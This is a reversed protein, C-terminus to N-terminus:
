TACPRSDENICVKVHKRYWRYSDYDPEDVKFNFILTGSDGDEGDHFYELTKTQASFSHVVLNDSLTEADMDALDFDSGARRLRIRQVGTDSPHLTVAEPNLYYPAEKEAKYALAQDILFDSANFDSIDNASRRANLIRERKQILEEQAESGDTENNIEEESPPTECLEDDEPEFCVNDLLTDIPTGDKLNGEEDYEQIEQTFDDVPVHFDIDDLAEPNDTLYENIQDITRQTITITGSPEATSDEGIVLLFRTLNIAFPDEEAIAEEIVRHSTFGQEDSGSSHLLKRQEESFELPSLMPAVPIDEALPLDGVSFSIREGPYYRYQGDEDTTGSQSQTEYSVGEIGMETLTGTTRDDRDSSSSSDDMCGVLMVAAALACVRLNRTASATTTIATMEM